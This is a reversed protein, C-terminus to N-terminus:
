VEGDERRKAAERRRVLIEADRLREEWEAWQGDMGLVGGEYWAEVARASRDRLEAFEAGQARQKMRVKGIRPNLNTLKAATSPDPVDLDQLQTLSTSLTNYISSHALVLSALSTPPLAPPASSSATPDFIEPHAKQLNLIDNITSSSSALNQLSRELARLRVAASTTNKPTTSPKSTYGDGNLLYHIRKLRAELMSLTDATAEATTAM